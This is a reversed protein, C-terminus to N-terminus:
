KPAPATPVPPVVRDIAEPTARPPPRPLDTTAIKLMKQTEPDSPSLRRAYGTPLRWSTQKLEDIFKRAADETDFVFYLTDLDDPVFVGQRKDTYLSGETELVEVIYGYGPAYRLVPGQQEYCATGGLFVVMAAVMAVRM